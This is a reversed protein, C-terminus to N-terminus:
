ALYTKWANCKQKTDAECENMAAAVIQKLGIAFGGCEVM